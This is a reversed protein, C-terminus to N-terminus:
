LKGCSRMRVGRPGTTWGSNLTLFPPDRSFRHPRPNRRARGSAARPRRNRTAANATECPLNAHEAMEASGRGGTAAGEEGGLCCRPPKPLQLFVGCGLSGSLLGWVPVPAPQRCAEIGSGAPHGRTPRSLGDLHRLSLRAAADARPLRLPGRFCIPGRGTRYFRLRHSGTTHIIKEGPGQLPNPRGLRDLSGPAQIHDGLESFGGPV